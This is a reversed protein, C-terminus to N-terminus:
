SSFITKLVGHGKHVWEQHHVIYQRSPCRRVQEVDLAKLGSAARQKIQLSLNVAYALVIQLVFTYFDLLVQRRRKRTASRSPGKCPDQTGTM